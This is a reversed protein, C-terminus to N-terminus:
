IKRYRNLSSAFVNKWGTHANAGAASGTKTYSYGGFSESQYPSLSTAEYKARWAEIEAALEIVAKPIALAWVEGTFTEDTLEESGYKYVGDNFISGNIRFYQDKQLPAEIKGAVISYTGPFIEQEFWNRLEQCLETIM